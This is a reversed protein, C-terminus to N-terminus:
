LKFVKQRLFNLADVFLYICNKIIEIFEWINVSFLNKKLPIRRLFLDKLLIIHFIIEIHCIDIFIEMFLRM